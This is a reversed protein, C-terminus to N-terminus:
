KLEVWACFGNICYNNSDCCDAATVCRENLTACTHQPPPPECRGQPAGFEDTAAGAAGSSIECVTDPCCDIGTACIAGNVRCADLAAFARHNGVAFTQGPLYFAPHSADATYKGDPRVDIATVWLQRLLGLHGFHRLSDFFVWFYGGQAVPMVTPIYNHHLEIAGFPLYTTGGSADAESNFGMAKALMHKEGTTLDVTYLDSTPLSLGSNIDLGGPTNGQLQTNDGGLPGATFDPGTTEVYLVAKNDPLFAPFGPRMPGSVNSEKVISRYNTAKNTTTDYDMAALGHFTDLMGDNFVLLKGDPSFMPMAATTPIGTNAIVQGTLADHLRSTGEDTFLLGSLYMGISGGLWAGLTSSLYKSGDPYLAAFAVNSGVRNPAPLAAPPDVLAYTDGPQQAAGSQDSWQVSMRSGNASVAHCGPCAHLMGGTDQPVGTLLEEASGGARIRMVSGAYGGSSKNAFNNYYVSGIVAGNAITIHTSFPGSIVGKARETVELTFTDTRGQSQQGAKIWVSQPVQLLPQPGGSMMATLGSIAAANLPAGPAVSNQMPKLVGKYEFARARIHLYVADAAPDSDWMLVPALTGRPFVTGDYPYLWKKAGVPGGTMLRTVEDPALGAPNNAGTNDIMLPVSSPLVPDMRRSLATAGAIPQASAPRPDNSAPTSAASATDLPGGSNAAPNSGLVVDNPASCGLASCIISLLCAISFWPLATRNLTMSM